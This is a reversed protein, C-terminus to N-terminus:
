EAVTYPRLGIAREVDVVFLIGNDPRNLDGLINQAADILTDVMDDNRVLSILTLSTEERNRLIELMSMTGPLIETDGAVKQLRGLGYSEIFTVGPAGAQQWADAVSHADQLLPTILVVLKPM